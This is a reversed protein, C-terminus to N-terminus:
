EIWFPSSSQRWDPPGAWQEEKANFVVRWFTRTRESIEPSWVGRFFAHIRDLGYRGILWRVDELRGRELIRAMVGHAHAELDIEDVDVDWFIWRMGDPIRM